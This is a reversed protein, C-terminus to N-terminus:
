SRYFQVQLKMRLLTLRELRRRGLDQVTAGGSGPFRVQDAGRRDIPARGNGPQLDVQEAADAIIEDLVVHFARLPEAREQGWPRGCLEDLDDLVLDAEPVAALDVEAVALVVAVDVLVLAGLDVSEQDVLERVEGLLHVAEETRTHAHNTQRDGLLELALERADEAAGVRPLTPWAKTLDEKM